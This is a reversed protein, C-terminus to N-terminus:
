RARRPNVYLEARHDTFNRRARSAMTALAVSRLPVKRMPGPALRLDGGSHSVLLCDGLLYSFARSSTSRGREIVNKVIAPGVGTGPYDASDHLRIVPSSCTPRTAWTSAQMMIGSSIVM